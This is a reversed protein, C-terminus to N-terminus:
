ALLVIADYLLIGVALTLALFTMNNLTFGAVRMLTITAILSAPIALASILVARWNRIFLLIILSALLSGLLLHEELAAISARIFQSQDSVTDITLDDPLIPRLKGLKANVADVVN